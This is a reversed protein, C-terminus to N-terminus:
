DCIPDLLHWLHQAELPSGQDFYDVHTLDTAINRYVM